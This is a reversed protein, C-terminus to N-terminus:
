FWSVLRSDYKTFCLLFIYCQLITPPAAAVLRQMAKCADSMINSVIISCSIEPAGWFGGPMRHLVDLKSPLQTVFLLSSTGAHITYHSDESHCRCSTLVVFLILVWLSLLCKFQVSRESRQALLFTSFFEDLFWLHEAGSFSRNPVSAAHTVFCSLMQHFGELATRDKITDAGKSKAYNEYCFIFVQMGAASGSMLLRDLLLQPWWSGGRVWYIVTETRSKDGETCFYSLM